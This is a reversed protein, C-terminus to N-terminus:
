HTRDAAARLPPIPSYAPSRFQHQTRHDVIRWHGGRLEFVDRYVVLLEPEPTAPSPVPAADPMAYRLCWTSGRARRPGLVEISCATILHVDRAAPRREFRARWVHEFFRRVAAHGRMPALGPRDWLVDEAFASLLRDLDRNDISTVYRTMLARCSAEIETPTMASPSMGECVASDMGDM